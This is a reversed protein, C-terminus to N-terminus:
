RGTVISSQRKNIWQSTLVGFGYNMQDLTKGRLLPSANKRVVGVLDKGMWAEAATWEKERAKQALTSWADGDLTVVVQWKLLGEWSKRIENGINKWAEDTAGKSADLLIKQDAAPLSKWLDLNMVLPTASFMDSTVYVYKFAEGFVSFEATACGSSADITGTTLATSVESFPITVPSFGLVNFRSEVVRNSQVRIKLGKPNTVDFLKNSIVNMSSGPCSALIKWNTEKAIDDWMTSNWGDPKFAAYAQEWNYFIFGLKAIDWKPSMKTSPWLFAMEQAGSAIAEQQVTYDGLLTGPYHTLKIRGGSAKDVRAMFDEVTSFLLTGKPYPQAIKWNYSKTQAQSSGAAWMVVVFCGIVMGVLLRTVMSRPTGKM